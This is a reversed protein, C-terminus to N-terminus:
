DLRSHPRREKDKLIEKVVAVGQQVLRGEDRNAADVLYRVREIAGPVNRVMALTLRGSQADHEVIYGIEGRMELDFM